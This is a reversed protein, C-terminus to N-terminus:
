RRRILSVAIADRELQRECGSGLPDNDDPRHDDYLSSDEPGLRYRHPDARDDGSCRGECM